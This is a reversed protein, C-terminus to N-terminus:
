QLVGIVSEGSVLDPLSNGVVWDGYSVVEFSEDLDIPHSGVVHVVETFVRNIHTMLSNFSEGNKKPVDPVELVCSSVFTFHKM